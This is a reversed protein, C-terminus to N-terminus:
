QLYEDVESRKHKTVTANEEERLTKENYDVTTIEGAVRALVPQPKSVKLASLRAVLRQM